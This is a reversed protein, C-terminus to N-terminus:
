KFPESFFPAATRLPENGRNAGGGGVGGVSGRDSEFRYLGGRETATPRESGVIIPIVPCCLPGGARWGLQQHLPLLIFFVTPSVVHGVSEGNGLM